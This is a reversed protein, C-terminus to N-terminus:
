AQFNGPPSSSNNKQGASLFLFFGSRKTGAKIANLGSKQL